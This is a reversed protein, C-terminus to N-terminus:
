NWSCVQHNNQHLLCAQLEVHYPSGREMRLWFSLSTLFVRTRRLLALPLTWELTLCHRSVSESIWSFIFWSGWFGARMLWCFSCDMRISLYKSWSSSRLRWFDLTLHRSSPSPLLENKKLWVRVWQFAFLIISKSFSSPFMTKPWVWHELTATSKKWFVIQVVAIVEPLISPISQMVSESAWTAERSAGIVCSRM